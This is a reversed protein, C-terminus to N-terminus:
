RAASLVQLMAVLGVGFTAGAMLLIALAVLGQGVRYLARGTWPTESTPLQFLAAYVAFGSIGTLLAALWLAVAWQAVTM